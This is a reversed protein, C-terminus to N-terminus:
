RKNKGYVVLLGAVSVISVVSIEVRLKMWITAYAEHIILKHAIDHVKEWKGLM